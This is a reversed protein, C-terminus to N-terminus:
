MWKTRKRRHLYKIRDDITKTLGATFNNDRIRRLNYDENRAKEYRKWDQCTKRCDVTRNPCDRRNLTDYCPVTPKM